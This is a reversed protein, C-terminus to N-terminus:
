GPWSPRAAPDKDRHYARVLWGVLPVPAYGSEEGRLHPRRHSWSATSLSDASQRAPGLRGLVASVPARRHGLVHPTQREGRQDRAIGAGYDAKRTVSRQWVSACTVRQYRRHSSRSGDRSRATLSTIIRRVGPYIAATSTCAASAPTTRTRMSGSPRRVVQTLVM